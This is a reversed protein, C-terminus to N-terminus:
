RLTSDQLDARAYMYNDVSAADVASMFDDMLGPAWYTGLIGKSYNAFAFRGDNFGHIQAVKDEMQQLNQAYTAGDCGLGLMDCEDYTDWGVVGPNTVVEARSWETGAIVLMGTDTISAMSSGDHEANQYVNVGIDKLQAAHEPKGYYVSIPFLNPNNLKAAGPFKSWYAPGGDWPVRALNALSGTPTPTPTPTATPTPTPTPTVTPTPTATPTPTTTETPTPTPTTTPEATPTATSTTTPEPTGTPTESPDTPTATPEATSTASPSETPPPTGPDTCGALAVVIVAGLTVLTRKM